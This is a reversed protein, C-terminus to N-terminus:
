SEVKRGPTRRKMLREAETARDVDSEWKGALKRWAALQADAGPTRPAPREARGGLASELLHIIEQTVSRRDKDAAKRLARLLGDPLNKLTLSAMPCGQTVTISGNHHCLPQWDLRTCMDSAIVAQRGLRHGLLELGVLLRKPDIAAAVQLAHEHGAVVLHELFGRTRSSARRRALSGRQVASSTAANM